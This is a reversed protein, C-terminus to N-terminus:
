ASPADTSGEATRAPAHPDDVLRGDRRMWERQEHHEFDALVCSFWRAFEDATDLYYPVMVTQSIPIVKRETRLRPESMGPEWEQEFPYVPTERRSDPLMATIRLKPEWSYGAPDFPGAIPREPAIVEFTFGPKYSWRAVETRLWNLRAYPERM